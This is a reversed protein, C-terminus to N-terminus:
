ITMLNDIYILEVEKLIEKAQSLAKMTTSHPHGIAIAYGKKKAINVAKRLQKHITKVNHVNDIFINRYVYADGFYKTIKPVKTTAITRSDVFMFGEKKLAGYLTLMGRYDNTFVSGTHNNIYRATPFLRRLEKARAIIEADSFSTKLTKYQTNFQKSGSEMPLHIMYHKLGKALLHSKMSRESPPFISPTIKMHLAQISKLQRRNSVDDIIIILKPKGSLHKVYVKATGKAAPKEEKELPAIPKKGSNNNEVLLVSREPKKIMHEAPKEVRKKQKKESKKLKAVPASTTVSDQKGLFYGFAVMSIMVFVGLVILISKKFNSHKSKKSRRKKKLPTKKSSSRSNTKKPQVAM